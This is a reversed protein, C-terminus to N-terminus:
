GPSEAGYYHSPDEDRFVTGNENVGTVMGLNAYQCAEARASATCTMSEGPQLSDKPCDVQVGQDDTVLIDYIPDDDLNSVTYRWTVVSGVPIEPGPAVDADHGNTTKEIRLGESSLCWAHIELEDCVDEMQLAMHAEVDTTLEFWCPDPGAFYHDLDIRNSAMLDLNWSRIFRGDEDWASLLAKRTQPAATETPNGQVDTWIVMQADVDQMGEFYTRMGHRKCTEHTPDAMDVNILPNNAVMGGDEDMLTYRGWLYPAKDGAVSFRVFGVACGPQTESGFYMGDLTTNHGCLAERLRNLSGGILRPNDPVHGKNILDAMNFHRIQRPGLSIQFKFVSIGWNTFIEVDVMLDTAASNGLTLQTDQAQGQVAVQFHPLLLERSTHPKDAFAPIFIGLVCACAILRTRTMTLM